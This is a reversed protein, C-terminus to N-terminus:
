EGVTEGPMLWGLASGGVDQCPLEGPCLLREVLYASQAQDFRYPGCSGRQAVNAPGWREPRPPSAYRNSNPDRLLCAREWCDGGSKDTVLLLQWPRNAFAVSTACTEEDECDLLEAAIDVKGDLFRRQALVSREPRNRQAHLWARGDVKVKEDAEVLFLKVKPNATWDLVAYPTECGDQESVSHAGRVVSVRDLQRMDRVILTPAADSARLDFVRLQNDELYWILELVSDYLVFDAHPILVRPAANSVSRVIVMGADTHVLFGADDQANAVVGNSSADSRAPPPLATAEVRTAHVAPARTPAAACGLPGLWLSLIALVDTVVLM